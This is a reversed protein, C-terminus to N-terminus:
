SPKAVVIVHPGLGIVSPESEIARASDIIIQRKDADEWSRQLRPIWATIGEVGVVAEVALGAREAEGEAEEPRHFYATTFYERGDPNAHRGTALDAEVVSRFVPDFIEGEALGAFLSAFRTIIAGFVIGGAPCSQSGREM